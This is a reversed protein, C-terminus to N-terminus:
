VLSLIPGTRVAVEVDTATGLAAYLKGGSVVSKLITCPTWVGATLSVSAVVTAPNGASEGLTVTGGSVSRMLVQVVGRGDGVLQTDAQLYGSSTRRGRIWGDADTSLPRMGVMYGDIPPSIRTADRVFLDPGVVPYGLAGVKTIEAVFRYEGLETGNLKIMPGGNGTSLDTASITRYHDLTQLTGDWSGSGINVYLSAGANSFHLRLQGTYSGSVRQAWVRFRYRVGVELLGTQFVVRPYEIHSGTGTIEVKYDAAGYIPLSTNRAASLTAGGLDNSTSYGSAGAALYPDPNLSVMSGGRLVWDPPVGHTIWYTRDADTLAANIWCGQPADGAPWNYGLLHWTDDMSSNLWDVGGGATAAVFSSSIDVGNVKVVPNTTGNVLYFDLLVTRGAYATVFDTYTFSRNTSTPSGVQSLVLDGGTTFYASFRNTRTAVSDANCVLTTIYATASPDAAPVPVLGAWSARSAGTLDGRAGPTFRIARDTTSGASIAQPRSARLALRPNVYGHLTLPAIYKAAETGANTESQSAAIGTSTVEAFTGDDLLHKTGTVTAPGQVLGKRNQKFLTYLQQSVGM